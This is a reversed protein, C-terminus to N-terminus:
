ADNLVTGIVRAGDSELQSSLTKIDATFTKDRRAVIVAYGVVSAILRSDSCSNAPPTDIVTIDFDRLCFEIMSRFRPGALLEQPNAAGGSYLVSLNPMIDEEICDGLNANSSLYQRLGASAREPRILKDVGPRRLDGDILLTKLGIQSFAMALNTAVFTCGTEPSAGCVALARRGGHIHQAVLHTRLARFAESQADNTRGALALSTDLSYGPRVTLAGKSPETLANGPRTATTTPNITMRSGGQGQEAM